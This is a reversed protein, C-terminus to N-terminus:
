VYFEKMDELRLCALKSKKQMGVGNDVDIYGSSYYIGDTEKLNYTPYHGVILKKDFKVSAPIYHLDNSLLYNMESEAVWKKISEVINITKNDRCYVPAADELYGTHTLVYSIGDVAVEVFHPLSKLYKHIVQRQEDDMKELKEIVEDGGFKAYLRQIESDNKIYKELFLEHNGKIHVINDHEMVIKLIGLTDEGRDPVDGLIYLNDEDSFGIARLLGKFKKYHGHIDSVVYNM